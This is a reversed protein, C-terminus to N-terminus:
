FRTWNDQNGMNGAISMLNHLTFRTFPQGGPHRLLPPPEIVRTMWDKPPPVARAIPGYERQLRPELNAAETLPRAIYQNFVGRPDDGDLRNLWREMVMTSADALRLLHMAKAWPGVKGVGPRYDIFPGSDRVQQKMQDIVPDLDQKVGEKDVRKAERGFKDLSLMTQWFAKSEGVTLDGIKQQKLFNTDLLFDPAPITILHDQAQQEVFDRFNSFGRAPMVNTLIDNPDVNARMGFKKM